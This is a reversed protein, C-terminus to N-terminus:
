HSGNERNEPIYKSLIFAQIIVFVLTLGLTGFLKFNVWTDTDFQYVVYINLFGMVSFFAVWSANLKNWVNKPLEVSKDLMRQVLNKQGIYRSLLFILALIWYVATPKWKIYIEDHLYLTAGGLVVIFLLTVWHMTEPRKGKAFMFLIQAAVSVIASITAVYIGYLKFAVFFIIIPLMDFFLKM